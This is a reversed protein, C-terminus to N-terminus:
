VSVRDLKKTVKELYLVGMEVGNPDQFARKDGFDENNEDLCTLCTEVVESYRTGMKARLATSRSLATLHEKLAKPNKLLAGREALGLAASPQTTGDARYTVFSQWLGIELLCVGLSYVDHQTTYYDVSTGQRQPHRYLNTEWKSDTLPYTEAGERRLAQFGVLVAMSPLKVEDRRSLGLVTEPCINKHVYGHLSVTYVANVLRKAMELRDSLSDHAQGSLLLQRVSRVNTYENPLRFLFAVSSEGSLRVVGECYLIGLVAPSSYRFRRALERAYRQTGAGKTAIDIILSESDTPRWAVLATSYPIAEKNYAEFAEEGVFVTHSEGAPENFSPGAADAAGTEIIDDLYADVMRFGFHNQWSELDAILEELTDRLRVYRLEGSVNSVPHKDCRSNKRSADTLNGSLIRHMRRQLDKQDDAMPNEMSKALDVSQLSTGSAVPLKMDGHDVAEAFTGNSATAGPLPYHSLPHELGTIQSEQTTLGKEIYSESLPSSVTSESRADLVVPERPIWDQVWEHVAAANADLRERAEPRVLARIFAQGQKGVCSEDLRQRPFLEDPNEGYQILSMLDPFMHTKTLMFFTLVGLAWMDTAPHNIDSRGTQGLLIEPATYHESMLVTSETEVPAGGLQKSTGFDSLKVWWLGAEGLKPHQRILVNKPKIDRHAYGEGHMLVLGRLVQIAIQRAEDEALPNEDLYAQLDGAPFYEMTVYLYNKSEYWGLTKVFHRSYRDHSLKTILKLENLCRRRAGSRDDLRTVKVARRSQYRHGETICTELYVKAQGGRAIPLRDREWREQVKPSSPPAQPDNLIHVVRRDRLFRTDLKYDRVHEPLDNEM